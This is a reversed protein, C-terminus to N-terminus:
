HLLDKRRLTANKGGRRANESVDTRRLLVHCVFIGIHCLLYMFRRLIMLSTLRGKGGRGKRTLVESVEERGRELCVASM